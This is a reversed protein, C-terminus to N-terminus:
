SRERSTLGTRIRAIASSIDEPPVATNFLPSVAPDTLLRRCAVACAPDLDLAPDELERALAELEVAAVRIRSDEALEAQGLWGRILDASSRRREMSAERAAYRLVEPLVYADSEDALRDVLDWRRWLSRVGRAGVVLGGVFLPLVLPPYLATAALSASLAAAGLALEEREEQRLEVLRAEVDELARADM